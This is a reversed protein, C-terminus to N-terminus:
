ESCMPDSDRGRVVLTSGDVILDVEVTIAERGCPCTSPDRPDAVHELRIRERPRLRRGPLPAVAFAGLVAGDRFLRAGAIEAPGLPADGVELVADVSAGHPDCGGCPMCGDRIEVDVLAARV